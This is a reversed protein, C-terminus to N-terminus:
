ITQFYVGKCVHSMIDPISMSYFQQMGVLFASGVSPAADLFPPLLLTDYLPPLSPSLALAIYSDEMESEWTSMQTSHRRPWNFIFVEAALAHQPQGHQSISMEGGAINEGDIVDGQEM